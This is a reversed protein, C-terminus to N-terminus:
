GESSQNPLGVDGSRSRLLLLSLPISFAYSTWVFRGDLYATFLSYVILALSMGLGGLLSYFVAKDVQCTKKKLFQNALFFLCLFGPLGFTLIVSGWARARSLNNIVTQWSPYWLLQGAQSYFEQVVVKRAWFVLACVATVAVSIIASRNRLHRNILFVPVVLIVTEKAFCGLTASLVFMLTNGVVIFYTCVILFFILAPDVYGVTGYYFTPFSFIFM